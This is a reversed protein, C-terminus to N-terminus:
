FDESALVGVQFKVRAVFFLSPLLLCRLLSFMVWHIEFALTSKLAFPLSKPHNLYSRFDRYCFVNQESVLKYRIPKTSIGPGTTWLGILALGPNFKLESPWNNSPRNATLGPNFKVRTEKERTWFCKRPYNERIEKSNGIMLNCVFLM